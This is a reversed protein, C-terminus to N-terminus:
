KHTIEHRRKREEIAEEILQKGQVAGFMFCDWFADRGPVLEIEKSNLIMSIGKLIVDDMLESDIKLKPGNKSIIRKCYSSLSRPPATALAKARKNAAELLTDLSPYGSM